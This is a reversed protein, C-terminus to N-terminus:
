VTPRGSDRQMYRSPFRPDQEPSYTANAAPCHSQISPSCIFPVGQSRAIAETDAETQDAIANWRAATLKNVTPSSGYRVFLTANNAARVQETTLNLRSVQVDDHGRAVASAELALTGYSEARADTTDHKRLAAGQAFAVLAGILTTVVIAVAIFKGYRDHGHHEEIEGVLEEVRPIEPGAEPM